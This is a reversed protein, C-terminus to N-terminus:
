KNLKKQKSISIIKNKSLDKLFDNVDKETQKESINYKKSMMRIITEKNRGKKIMEFIDSGSRNFSYLTSSDVDFINIEGDIKDIVFDKM